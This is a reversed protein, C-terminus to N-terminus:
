MSSILSSIPGPLASFSRKQRRSSQFVKGVIVTMQSRRVTESNVKVDVYVDSTEPRNTNNKFSLTADEAYRHGQNGMETEVYIYRIQALYESLCISVVLARFAELKAHIKSRLVIFTHRSRKIAPNM